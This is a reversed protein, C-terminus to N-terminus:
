RGRWSRPRRRPAVGRRTPPSGACRPRPHGSPRGSRARARLGRGSVRAPHHGVSGDTAVIAPYTLASRTHVGGDDLFPDGSSREWRRAVPAEEYWRAGATRGRPPRTGCRGAHSAAWPGPRPAPARRAGRAAPCPRRRARRAARRDGTEVGRDEAQEAVRDEARRADEHEPRVGRQPRHDGRRDRRQGQGATVRGLGDRQRRHQGQEDPHDHGDRPDGVEPEHGVQERLRGLDAVHVSERQRDDDALQGLQEAERDVGVAQDRLRLREEGAQASRSNLPVAAATPTAESTPMRSSWRSSGLIGATSTTTTRAASATM